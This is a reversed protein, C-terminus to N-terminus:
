ETDDDDVEVYEKEIFALTHAASHPKLQEKTLATATTSRTKGHHARLNLIHETRAGKIRTFLSNKDFRALPILELLLVHFSHSALNYIRLLSQKISRALSELLKIANDKDYNTTSNTAKSRAMLTPESTELLKVIRKNIDDPAQWPSALLISHYLLMGQVNNKTSHHGVAAKDSRDPAFLHQMGTKSSDGNRLADQVASLCLNTVFYKWQRFTYTDWPNDRTPVLQYKARMSNQSIITSARLEADVSEADGARPTVARGFFLFVDADTLPPAAASSTPLPSRLLTLDRCKQKVLFRGPPKTFGEIQALAEDREQEDCQEWAM